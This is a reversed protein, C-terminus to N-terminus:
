NGGAIVLKGGLADPHDADRVIEWGVNPNCRRLTLGLKRSVLLADEQAQIQASLPYVALPTSGAISKDQAVLDVALVAHALGNHDTAIALSLVQEWADGVVRLFRDVVGAHIMREGLQPNHYLSM